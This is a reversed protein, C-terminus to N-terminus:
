KKNTSTKRQKILSFPITNDRYDSDFWERSNWIDNHLKMNSILEEPSCVVNEELNIMSNFLEDKTKEMFYVEQGNNTLVGLEFAVTTGIYGDKDCVYVFDAELCKNLYDLELERPNDSTDGVLILYSNDNNEIGSTKPALVDFGNNTFIQATEVILDYHKGFSGLIVVSNYNDCNYVRM